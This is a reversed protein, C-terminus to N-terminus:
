KNDLWVFRNGSDSFLSRIITRVTPYVIWIGLFFLAPALFGFALANKRWLGPGAEARVRHARREATVMQGTM